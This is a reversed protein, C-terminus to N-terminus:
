YCHCQPRDACHGPRKMCRNCVPTGRLRRPFRNASTPASKLHRASARTSYIQPEPSLPRGVRAEPVYEVTTGGEEGTNQGLLLAQELARSRPAIPTNHEAAHLAADSPCSGTQMSTMCPNASYKHKHTQASDVLIWKKHM